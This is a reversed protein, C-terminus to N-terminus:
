IDVLQHASADDLGVGADRKGGRRWGMEWVGVWAELVEMAIKCRLKNAMSAYGRCRQLWHKMNAVV